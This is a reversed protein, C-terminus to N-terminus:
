RAAAVLGGAPAPAATEGVDTIRIETQEAQTALAGAIAKAALKGNRVCRLSPQPPRLKWPRVHPWMMVYPPRGKGRTTIAIDSVDGSRSRMDAAEIQNLPLNVIMPLAMGFRFVVRKNTVTYITSRAVLWAYGYLLLMAAAFLGGYWLASMGAAALTGGDHVIVVSQWAGIVLFYAAIARTHLVHLAFSAMDPAGRWLITEGRPLAEPLGPFPEYEHKRM